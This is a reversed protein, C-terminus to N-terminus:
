DLELLLILHFAKQPVNGYCCGRHRFSALVFGSNHQLTGLYLTSYKVSNMITQHTKKGINLKANCFHLEKSNMKLILDKTSNKKSMTCSCYQPLEINVAACRTYSVAFWSQILSYKRTSKAALRTNTITLHQHGMSSMGFPPKNREIATERLRDSKNPDKQKSFRLTSSNLYNHRRGTQIM